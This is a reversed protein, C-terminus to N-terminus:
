HGSVKLMWCFSGSQKGWELNAQLTQKGSAQPTETTHSVIERHRWATSEERRRLRRLSPTGSVIALCVNTKMSLFATNQRLEPKKAKHLKKILSLFGKQCIRETDIM